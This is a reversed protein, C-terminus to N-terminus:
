LDLQLVGIEAFLCLHEALTELLRLCLAVVEALQALLKLFVTLLAEFINARPVGLLEFGGFFLQLFLLAVELLTKFVHVSLAFILEGLKLREVFRLLLTKLLPVGVFLFTASTAKQLHLLLVFDLKPFFRRVVLIIDLHQLRLKRVRNLIALL